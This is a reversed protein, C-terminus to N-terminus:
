LWGHVLHASSDEKVGQLLQVVGVSCRLRADPTVAFDMTLLRTLLHLGLIVVTDLGITSMEDPMGSVLMSYRGQLEPELEDLPDIDGARYNALFTGLCLAWDDFYCPDVQRINASNTVDFVHLMMRMIGVDGDVAMRPLLRLALTIFAPAVVRCKTLPVDAGAHFDADVLAFGDDDEISAHANDPPAM